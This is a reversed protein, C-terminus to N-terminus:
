KRKGEGRVYLLVLRVQVDRRLLQCMECVSIAPAVTWGSCTMHKM